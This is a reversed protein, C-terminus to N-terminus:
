ATVPKERLQVLLFEAAAELSRSAESLTAGLSLFGHVQSPLDRLKVTVGAKFLRAAFTV